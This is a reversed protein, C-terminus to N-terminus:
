EACEVCLEAEPMAQLRGLPIPEGCEACLGFDPDEDLRVLARELLQVRERARRLGAKKVEANQMADLRSLRGIAVDPAVPEDKSAELRALQERQSALEAQIHAKLTTRTAADM